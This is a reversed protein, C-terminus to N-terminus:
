LADTWISQNWFYVLLRWGLARAGEAESTLIERVGVTQIYTTSRASARLKEKGEATPSNYWTLENGLIKQVM